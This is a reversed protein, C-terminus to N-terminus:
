SVRRLLEEPTDSEFVAALMGDLVERDAVGDLLEGLRAATEADFKMEAYRRLSERLGEVRGAARYEEKWAHVRTGYHADIEDPDRLRNLEVMDGLEVGLRRRAQRSAWELMVRRLEELEPVNVRRHFARFLEEATELELGELGVLLAAANDHRLDEARVRHADLLVYGDGAFVPASRWMLDSAGSGSAGPTVLDIVRVAATWRSEGTYLVVPLVPALRDGSGSRRGRWREMHFNDVYNRIRLAMRFDVESQFELMMVLYPWAEGDGDDDRGRFPAQWVMDNAYGRLAAAGSSVSQEHMRQLRSFDLADVLERAGRLDAVLWRMLEEVMFAHGFITKYTPDPRM